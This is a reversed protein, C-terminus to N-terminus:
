VAGYVATYLFPAQDAALVPRTGHPAPTPASGLSGAGNDDKSEDVCAFFNLDFDVGCSELKAVYRPQPGRRSRQEVDVSTARQPRGFVEVYVDDKAVFDNYKAVDNTEVARVRGLLLHPTQHYSRGHAYQGQSRELVFMSDSLDAHPLAVLPIITSGVAPIAQSAASVGDGADTANLTVIGVAQPPQPCANLTM